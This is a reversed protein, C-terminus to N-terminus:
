SSYVYEYDHEVYTEQSYSLTAKRTHVDWILTGQTSPVSGWSGFQENIPGELLDALEEDENAPLNLPVWVSQSLPNEKYAASDITYGGCYWTPLDVKEGSSLTLTISSVSGEDHGGDFELVASIAGKRELLEFARGVHEDSTKPDLLGM